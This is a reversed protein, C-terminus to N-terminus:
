KNISYVVCPNLEPTANLAPHRFEQDYTMGIKKMVSISPLNNHSAVSYIKKLDLTEFAYSLCAKAGETAYGKGWHTKDLRWGIDTCPTIPAEYDQYSIGIFGIFQKTDLRDVAFYCYDRVAFQKQMREIFQTTKQKDQTTPFFRMVEPDGNLKCMPEIDKSKWNRFGLRQTTFLYNSQKM